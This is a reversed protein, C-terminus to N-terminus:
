SLNEEIIKNVTEKAKEYGFGRRLLLSIAKEFRKRSDLNKFRSWKKKLVEYALAKEDIVSQSFYNEIVSQGVGKQKLEIELMKKGKPKLTTRMRIFWDVFKKDDILGQEILDKMVEEVDDQSWHRTKIKKNLYDRVEKESRPRFKLFFYAKDLLPILDEKLPM